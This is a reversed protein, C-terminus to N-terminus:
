AFDDEDVEDPDGKPESEEEGESDRPAGVLDDDSATPFYKEHLDALRKGDAASLVRKSKMEKIARDLFAAEVSTVGRPMGDLEQLMSLQEEREKDQKGM